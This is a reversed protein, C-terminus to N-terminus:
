RNSAMAVVHFECALHRQHGARLLADPGGDREGQRALAGVDGDGPVVVLGGRLGDGLAHV